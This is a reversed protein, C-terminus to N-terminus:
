LRPMEHVLLTASIGRAALLPVVRASAASNV